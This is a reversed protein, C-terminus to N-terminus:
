LDKQQRKPKNSKDKKIKGSKKKPIKQFVPEDEEDSPVYKQELMYGKMRAKVKEAIANELNKLGESFDGEFVNKIFKNVHVIENM